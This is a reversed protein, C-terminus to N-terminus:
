TLLADIKASLVALTFPKAIYDVAGMALGRLRDELERRYGSVMLVPVRELRPDAKMRRCFDPGDGDPLSYDLIIADPVVSKALEVGAEGAHAAVVQWGNEEFFMRVVDVIDKDDDIILLTRVM